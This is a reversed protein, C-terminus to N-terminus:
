QQKAQKRLLDCFDLWGYARFIDAVGMAKSNECSLLLLHHGDQRPPPASCIAFPIQAAEMRKMFAENMTHHEPECFIDFASLIVQAVETNLEHRTLPAKIRLEPDLFGAILCATAFHHAGGQNNLHYGWPRWSFGEVSEEAGSGGHFRLEHWNLLPEISARNNHVLERCEGIAYADLTAYGVLDGKGSALSIIDRISCSFNDDYTTSTLGAAAPYPLRQCQLGTRGPRWYAIDDGLCLPWRHWQIIGLESASAAPLTVRAALHSFEIAHQVAAPSAWHAHRLWRVLLTTALM